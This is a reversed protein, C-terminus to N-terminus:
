FHEISYNESSTFNHRFIAPSPWYNPVMKSQEGMLGVVSLQSATSRSDDKNKRREDVADWPERRQSFTSAEANWLRLFLRAELRDSESLKSVRPPRFHLYL